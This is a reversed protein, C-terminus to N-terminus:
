CEAHPDRDNDNDYVSSMESPTLRIGLGVLGRQMEQVCGDGTICWGEGCGRVGSVRSLGQWLARCRSTHLAGGAPQDDGHRQPGAAAANVACGGEQRVAGRGLPQTGHAGCRGDGVALATRCSGEASGDEWRRWESGMHGASPLVAGFGFILERHPEMTLFVVSGEWGWRDDPNPKHDPSALSARMCVECWAGVMGLLGMHQRDYTRRENTKSLHMGCLVCGDLCRAM